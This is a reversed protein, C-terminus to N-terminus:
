SHETFTVDALLQQQSEIARGDLADRGVADHHPEGVAVHCIPLTELSHDLCCLLDDSAGERGVFANLCDCSVAGMRCMM